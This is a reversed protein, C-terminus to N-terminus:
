NLRRCLCCPLGKVSPYELDFPCRVGANNILIDLTSEKAKFQEVAKLVSTFSLLDVQIFEVHLPKDAASEKISTIAEIAKQSSRSLIYVRAGHLALQLATIYGIGDSGKARLFIYFILYQKGTM